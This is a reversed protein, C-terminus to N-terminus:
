RQAVRRLPSEIDTLKGVIARKLEIIEAKLEAIESSSGYNDARKLTVPISRGDPLPVAAEPGAEAFISAEYAIGGNAYAKLGTIGAATDTTYEARLSQLYDAITGATVGFPNPQPMALMQQYQAVHNNYTDLLQQQSSTLGTTATNTPTSTAAQQAAAAAAAAQDKAAQNAQLYSSLLSNLSATQGVLEYLSSNQQANGGAITYQVGGTAATQVTTGVQLQSIVGQLQALQQATGGQVTSTIGQLTSVQSAGVGYIAEISAQLRSIQAVSGSNITNSLGLSDQTAGAIISASTGYIGSIVGQLQALQQATGGQVTSTIGQLTSVQSASTGYISEVAAQLRSLQATDGSNITTVLSQSNLSATSTASQILSQVGSLAQLQNMDGKSIAASIQALLDIMKQTTDVAPVTPFDALGSLTKMVQQVDNQYGAGSANYTKSTSLLQTALNPIDKMAALDGGFASKSTAAFLASAQQYNTQPSVGGAQISYLTQLIGQQASLADTLATKSSDIIKQNASSITTSAAQVANAYEITQTKLLQTTDLGKSQADTLEKQQSVMLAYLTAAGDQGTAKLYRSTADQNLQNQADALTQAQKQADAFAPAIAMLAQFLSAGSATTVDLSNVLSIFEANTKPVAYGMQAFASNVQQTEQAAKMASQQQTTFMSTFYNNVATTFKDNGGMLQTLSDAMKANAFSGQMTTAGVLSLSNNVTVLANNYEKLKAYADDYAGINDKLGKVTLSIGQLTTTLWKQLDASIQDQTRGATAINTDAPTYKSADVTTGLTAAMRTIDSLYPKALETIYKQLDPDSTFSIHSSSGTLWNGTDTTAYDQGTAQGNKVGLSIGAGTTRSGGFLSSIINYMGLTGWQEAAGTIGNMGLASKLGSALSASNLASGPNPPLATGQGPANVALAYGAGGSKFTNNLDDVSKSLRGIVVAANDTSKTLNALSEATQHDQISMLPTQLNGLNSGGSYGATSGAVSGAPAAVGSSGGGFSTSEIKAIQMAGTAAIMVAAVSGAIPGLDAYARMIGAATNMVAQGINLAKALEFQSRSTTDMTAALNGMLNGATETYTLLAQAKANQTDQAKAAELLANREYAKLYANEADTKAKTGDEAQAYMDASSDMLKKQWEIERNYRQNIQALQAEYATTVANIQVLQQQGDVGVQFSQNGFPSKLSNISLQNKLDDNAHADDFAVKMKKLADVQDLVAKTRDDLNKRAIQDLAIQTNTADVTLGIAQQLQVTASLQDKSAKIINMATDGAYKAGEVNAKGEANTVADWAAVMEKEAKMATEQAKNWVAAADNDGFAPKPASAAKQADEYAKQATMAYSELLFIDKNSMDVKSRHEADLFAQNSILGQDHQNKLLQLQLDSAAKADDIDAKDYAKNIAQQMERWKELETTYAAMDSELQETEPKQRVDPTNTIGLEKQMSPSPMIGGEKYMFLAKAKVNSWAQDAAKAREMEKNYMAEGTLNLDTYKNIISDLASVAPKAAMYFAGGVAVLWGVPNSEVAATIAVTLAGFAATIGEVGGVAYYAAVGLATLTGPSQALVGPLAAFGNVLATATNVADTMLPLITTQLIVGSAQLLINVKGLADKIYDWTVSIGSQIMQQHAQLYVNIEKTASVVDTFVQAFGARQIINVTTEFSTKVASWTNAIDKSAPGFGALVTNMQELFDGAQKHEEVWTKLDGGVMAKIASGLRSHASAQGQMLLMIESQLMVENQGGQSFVAAANALNKFGEVQASNNTDIAVGAKALELNIRQLGQISLSTSPEIKLLAANTQEAYDRTQRYTDAINGATGNAVQLSTLIASMQIVSLNFRDIAAIADM